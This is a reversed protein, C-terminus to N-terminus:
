SVRSSRVGLSKDGSEEILRGFIPIPFVKGVIQIVSFTYTFEEEYPDPITISM